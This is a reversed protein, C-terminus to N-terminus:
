ECTPYLITNTVSARLNITDTGIVPTVLPFAIYHPFTVTVTVTNSKGDELGECHSGNFNVDVKGSVNETEESDEDEEDSCEDDEGVCPDIVLIDSAAAATRYKIGDEDGPEFSGYTAGEQAADRITIYQFIALSTEVAGLLLLMIVMLSIALEVLSQGSQEKQTPEMKNKM